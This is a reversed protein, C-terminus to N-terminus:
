KNIEEVETKANLTESEFNSIRDMKEQTLSKYEKLENEAKQKADMLDQIQNECVEKEEKGAKIAADCEKQKSDLKDQISQVLTDKANLCKKQDEIDKLATALKAELQECKSVVNNKGM